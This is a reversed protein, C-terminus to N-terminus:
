KVEFVNSRVISGRGPNAMLHSGLFLVDNVYTNSAVWYMNHLHILFPATVQDKLRTDKYPNIHTVLLKTANNNTLEWKRAKSEELLHMKNIWDINAMVPVTGHRVNSTGKPKYYKGEPNEDDFFDMTYLKHWNTDEWPCSTSYIKPFGYLCLIDIYVGNRCKIMMPEESYHLNKPWTVNTNKRIQLQEQIERLHKVQAKEYLEVEGLNYVFQFDKYKKALTEAYLMGRKLQGINGNLIVLDVDPLIEDETSFENFDLFLDSIVHVKTM